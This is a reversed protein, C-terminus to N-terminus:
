RPRCARTAGSSACTADTDGNTPPRSRIRFRTGRASRLDRDRCCGHRDVPHPARARSDAGPRNVRLDGGACDTRAAHRLAAARPLRRAACRRHRRAREALLAPGRPECDHRALRGSGAIRRRAARHAGYHGDADGGAPDGRREGALRGLNALGRWLELRSLDGVGAGRNRRAAAAGRAVPALRAAAAAGAIRNRRRDRHGDVGHRADHHVCLDHRRSIAAAHPVLRNRAGARGTWVGGRRRRDRRTAGRCHSAAIGRNTALSGSEGSSAADGRRAFRLAAVGVIVNIAAAVLFSRQIGIAGILYFGALVAGAVAGATNVAYLASLRAGFQSGRVASSASLM